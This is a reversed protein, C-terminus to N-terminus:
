SDFWVILRVERYPLDTWIELWRPLLHMVFGRFYSNSLPYYETDEDDEEDDYHWLWDIQRLEDLYAYTHNYRSYEKDKSSDYSTDNPLGRRSLDIPCIDEDSYQGEGFIGFLYEDREFPILQEPIDIKVWKDDKKQEIYFNIDTGM